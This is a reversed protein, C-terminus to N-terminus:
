AKKKNPRNIYLSELATCQKGYYTKKIFSAAVFSPQLYHSTHLLADLISSHNSVMTPIPKTREKLEERWKPGLYESYDAEVKHENLFLNCNIIRILYRHSFYINYRVITRRWEPLPDKPNHGVLFLQSIFIECLIFLIFLVRFPATFVPVIMFSLILVWMPKPDPNRYPGMKADREPIYLLKDM